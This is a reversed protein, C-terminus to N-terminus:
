LGVKTMSSSNTGDQILPTLMLMVEESTWPDRKMMDLNFPRQYSIMTGNNDRTM